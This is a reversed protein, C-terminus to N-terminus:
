LLLRRLQGTKEIHCGQFLCDGGKRGVEGDGGGEELRRQFTLVFGQHEGELKDSVNSVNGQMQSWQGFLCVTCKDGYQGLM